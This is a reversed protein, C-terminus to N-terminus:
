KDLQKTTNGEKNIIDIGELNTSMIKIVGEPFYLNGLDSILAEIMEDTLAVQHTGGAELTIIVALNKIKM